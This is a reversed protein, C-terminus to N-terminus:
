LLCSCSGSKLQQWARHLYFKSNEFSNNCNKYICKGKIPTNKTLFIDKYDDLLTLNHESCYNQLRQIDYKIRQKM